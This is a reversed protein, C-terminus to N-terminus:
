TCLLLFTYWRGEYFHVCLAKNYEVPVRALMRHITANVEWVVRNGEWYAAGPNGLVRASSKGTGLAGTTRFFGM